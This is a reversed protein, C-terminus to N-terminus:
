WIAFLAEGGVHEKRAEKDTLVGKPTSLLLLGRGQKQSTIEKSRLYVRRGPKSIRKVDHVKHNGRPDYSLTIVLKKKPGHGEEKVDSVFNNIRLKQVISHKLKSYPVSVADKQVMGANKINIILDSVVDTVM